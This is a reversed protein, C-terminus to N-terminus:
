MQTKKQAQEPTGWGPVHLSTEEPKLDELSYINCFM